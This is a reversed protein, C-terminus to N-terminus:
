AVTDKKSSKTKICYILRLPKMQLVSGCGSISYILHGQVADCVVCDTTRIWRNIVSDSDSKKFRGFGSRPGTGSGSGSGLLIESLNRRSM